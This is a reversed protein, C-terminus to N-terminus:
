GRSMGRALRLAGTRPCPRRGGLLKRELAARVLRAGSYGGEMELGRALAALREIRELRPDTTSM